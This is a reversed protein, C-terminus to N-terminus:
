FDRVGGIFMGSAMYSAEYYEIHNILLYDTNIASQVVKDQALKLERLFAARNMQFTSVKMVTQVAVENM